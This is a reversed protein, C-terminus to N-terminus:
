IYADDAGKTSTVWVVSENHKSYYAEVKRMYKKSDGEIVNHARLLDVIPKIANDCDLRCTNALAIRVAFPALVCGPSQAELEQGAAIIWDRYKKSKINRGKVSRWIANASVPPTTFTLWVSQTVKRPYVDIM